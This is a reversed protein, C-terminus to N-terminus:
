PVGDQLLLDAAAEVNGQTKKLAETAAEKGFGMTELQSVSAALADEFSPPPPPMSVAESFAPPPTAPVAEAERTESSPAAAAPKAAGDPPLGARQVLLKIEGSLARLTSTAAEHGACAVSNVSVLM